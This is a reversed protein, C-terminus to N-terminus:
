LPNAKHPNRVSGRGSRHVGTAGPADQMQRQLAHLEELRRIVERRIRDREAFLTPTPAKGIQRETRALRKSAKRWAREAKRVSADVEAIYRDSPEPSPRVWGHNVKHIIKM